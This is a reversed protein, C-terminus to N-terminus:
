IVFFAHLHYFFVLSYAMFCLYISALAFVKARLRWLVIIGLCVLLMKVCMFLVPSTSLLIAMLPNAETAIGSEVWVITLIGDLANLVIISAVVGKLWDHYDLQGFKLM